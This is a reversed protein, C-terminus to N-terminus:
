SRHELLGSSSTSRSPYPYRKALRHNRRCLASPRRDFAPYSLTHCNSTATPFHTKSVSPDIGPKTEVSNTFQARARTPCAGPAMEFPKCVPIRMDDIRLRSLRTSSPTACAASRLLNRRDAHDPRIRCVSVIRGDTRSLPVRVVNERGPLALWRHNNAITQTQFTLM